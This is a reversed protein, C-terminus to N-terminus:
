ELIKKTNECRTKQLIAIVNNNDTRRIKRAQTMKREKQKKKELTNGQHNNALNSESRHNKSVNHKRSLKQQQIFAATTRPLAM